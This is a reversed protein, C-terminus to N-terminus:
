KPSKGLHLGFPPKAITARLRDVAPSTGAPIKEMIAKSQTMLTDLFIRLKDLDNWLNLSQNIDDGYPGRERAHTVIERARRCKTETCTPFTDLMGHTWHLDKALEHLGEQMGAVMLALRKEKKNLRM